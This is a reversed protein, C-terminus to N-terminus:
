ASAKHLLAASDSARYWTAVGGGKAAFYATAYYNLPNFGGRLPQKAYIALTDPSCGSLADCWGRLMEEAPASDAHPLRATDPFAARFAANQKLERFTYRGAM